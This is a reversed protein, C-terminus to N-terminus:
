TLFEDLLSSLADEDTFDSIDPTIIQEPQAVIPEKKKRGRKVVPTPTPTTSAPRTTLGLRKSEDAELENLIDIFLDYAEQSDFSQRVEDETVKDKILSKVVEARNFNTKSTTSLIVDTMMQLVYPNDAKITISGDLIPGDLILVVFNPVFYGLDNDLLGGLFHGGLIKSDFEIGVYESEAKIDKITGYYIKTVDNGAPMNTGLVAVRSGIGDRDDNFPRIKKADEDSDFVLYFEEHVYLEDEIAQGKDFGVKSQKDDELTRVTGLLMVEIGDGRLTTLANPNIAIRSGVGDIARDFPRINFGYNNVSKALNQGASQTSKGQLTPTLTIRAYGDDGPELVEVRYGSNFYLQLTEGLLLDLEVEPGTPLVVITGYLYSTDYLSDVGILDGNDIKEKLLEMADAVLLNNLYTENQLEVRDGTKLNSIKESRM